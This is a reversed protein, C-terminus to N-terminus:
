GAKLYHQLFFPVVVRSREFDSTALEQVERPRLPLLLVRGPDVVPADTSEVNELEVTGAYFLHKHEFIKAVEPKSVTDHVDILIFKEKGFSPRAGRGVMQTFLTDSEVPRAVIITEVNPVDFGMALMQVNVLVQAKGARFQEIALANIRDGKRAWKSHVVVASIQRLRYEEVVGMAEKVSGAYYIAQGRTLPISNEVIKTYRNKRTSIEVRSSQTLLGNKIVPQFVEGTNLRVVECRVLYEPVLDLYKLQAAFPLIQMNIPPTATLFVTKADCTRAFDQISTLRKKKWGHHGEDIVVLAVKLLEKLANQRAYFLASTTIVVKGQDGASYEKFNSILQGQGGLRRVRAAGDKFQQCTTMAHQNAIEWSPSVILVNKKKKLFGTHLYSHIFFTKGAGTPLQVAVTKAGGSFLATLNEIAAIQYPRLGHTEKMDNFQFQTALARKKLATFEKDISQIQLIKEAVEVGVETEQDKKIEYEVQRRLEDDQDIEGMTSNGRLKLM